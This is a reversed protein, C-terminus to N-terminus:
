AAGANGATSAFAHVASDEDDHIEMVKSLQTLELLKRVDRTPKLLNLRAGRSRTTTLTGILQGIGASDMYSLRAFNLVIKTKGGDILARVREIVQSSGDNQREALSLSGDLDLISVDGVQRVEIKLAM